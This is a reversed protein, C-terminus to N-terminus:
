TFANLEVGQPIMGLVDEYEDLRRAGYQMIKDFWEPNADAVTSYPEVVM